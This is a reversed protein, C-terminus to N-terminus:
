PPDKQLLQSHVFLSPLTAAYGLSFRIFNLVLFLVKNIGKTQQQQRGFSRERQWLFGIAAQPPEM